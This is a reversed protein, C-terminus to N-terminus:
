HGSRDVFASAAPGAFGSASVRQVSWHFRQPLDALYMADPTWKPQTITLQLLLNGPRGDSAVDRVVLSFSEGPQLPPEASWTFDGVTAVVGQPSLSDVPPVQEESGLVEVAGDEGREMWARGLFAGACLLVGAAAALRWPSGWSTRHPPASRQQRRRALALLEDTLKRDPDDPAPWTSPPSDPGELLEVWQPRRELLDRLRPDQRAWDERLAQEFLRADRELAQKPDNM